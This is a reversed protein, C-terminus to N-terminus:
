SAAQASKTARAVLEALQQDTLHMWGEPIPTLRIKTTGGQVALWGHSLEQPIVLRFEQQRRRRDSEDRAIARREANVRREVALPHVEWAEWACGQADNFRRYTMADVGGWLPLRHRFPLVHASSPFLTRCSLPRM